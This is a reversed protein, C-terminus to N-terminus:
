LNETLTCPPSRTARRQHVGANDFAAYIAEASQHRPWLPLGGNPDGSKAFNTWYRGLSVLSNGSRFTKEGLVWPIEGAHATLAASNTVDFEYRWVPWGRDSLLEALHAAPCEFVVDTAMELELHGARPDRKRSPDRYWSIAAASAPGFWAALYADMDISGASPGFEVKNSGIIVPVPPAKALLARPMETIVAGDVTTRLWLFDNPNPIAPDVVKRDAELLAAVSRSRLKTMDGSADVLASLSDAVAFGDALNRPPMGFGPTGSEMVAKHFLGRASPAALLLSVDQSGASEGFITVNAPDGGFKAINDRIWRLAAIQDMLGYNGAHGGAEEAAGRPALFGLVGLRYQIAVLVVGHDSLRSLVTDGASGARNSGGHIWVMVPRKGIRGPTRIDLTLCDERATLYDARNWGFDNQPCGPARAQAARVGKWAIVERPARWRLDDLPPAAFPIGRFLAAQGSPDAVGEIVGGPVNVRLSNDNAWGANAGSLVACVWGLFHRM